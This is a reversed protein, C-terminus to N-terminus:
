CLHHCFVSALSTHLTFVVPLLFPSAQLEMIGGGGGVHSKQEHSQM